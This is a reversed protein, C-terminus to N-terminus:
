VEDDDSLNRNEPTVAFSRSHEKFSDIFSSSELGANHLRPKPSSFSYSDTQSIGSHTNWGNVKVHYIKPLFVFFVPAASTAVIIALLVIFSATPNDSAIFLIPIGLILAEFATVLAFGIFRSEGFESPIRRSQYILYIGYMLSLVLIAALPALLALAKGEVSNCRGYSELVNGRADTRVVVREWKLPDVAIWVVNLALIIILIVAQYTQMKRNTIFIRKLKPNDFIKGLRWTKLWLSSYLIIFGFSYLFPAAACAADLVPYNGSPDIMIMKDDDQLALPVITLISLLGGLLMQQLFPPSAILVVQEKQNKQVWISLGIFTVVLFAVLAFAFVQLGLPILLRNEDPTLISVGACTISDIRKRTSLVLFDRAALPVLGQALIPQDLTPDRGGELVNDLLFGVYETTVEGFGQGDNCEVGDDEYTRRTVLNLTEVLPYCNSISAEVGYLDVNGTESDVANPVVCNNITEPGLFDNGKLINVILVDRLQVDGIIPQFAISFATVAVLSRLANISAATKTPSIEFDGLTTRERVLQVFRRELEDEQESGVIIIPQNLAPNALDPNIPNGFGDDRLLPDGWSIIDGDLIMAVKELPLDLKSIQCPDSNEDANSSCFNVIVGLAIGAYPVSVLESNSSAERAAANSQLAIALSPPNAQGEDLLSNVAVDSDVGLFGEFNTEPSVVAYSLQYQQFLPEVEATGVYIIAFSDVDPPIYVLQEDCRMDSQVRSVVLNRITDTLPSFGFSIAISQPVPDTYFWLFFQQTAYVNECDGGRRPSPNPATLTFNRRIVFYTYGVIPWAQSGEADSIDTLLREQEVDTQGFDLGKEVMANGVSIANAVVPVSGAVNQLSAFTLGIALAEGLVSYGMTGPTAAVFGGVGTNTDHKTVYAFYEDNISSGGIQQEFAARFKSLAGKFIESTGSGDKRVALQIPGHNAAAEHLAAAIEANRATEGAIENVAVIRTDNWESISGPLCDGNFPLTDNLFEDCQRFIDALVSKSLVLTHGIQDLEPLNYIPVVAGAVAPYMQIDPYANFEADKLLSDSGAFDVYIPDAEDFSGNEPDPTCRTDCEDWYGMARCKGGTSGTSEYSVAVSANQFRYAFIAEQYLRDPFSAGAGQVVVRNQIRSRENDSYAILGKEECQPDSPLLDSPEQCNGVVFFGAVLLVVIWRMERM